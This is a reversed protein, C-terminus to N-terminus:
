FQGFSFFFSFFSIIDSDVKKSSQFNILPKHCSTINIKTQTKNRRGGGGWSFHSFGQLLLMSQPSKIQEARVEVRGNSWSQPLRLVWCSAIITFVIVLRSAVPSSLILNSSRWLWRELSTDNNSCDPPEKSSNVEFSDKNSKVRFSILLFLRKRLAFSLVIM